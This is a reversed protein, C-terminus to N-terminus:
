VHSEYRIFTERGHGYDHVTECQTFGLGELWKMSKANEHHIYNTLVPYREHMRKVSEFSEKWFIRPIESIIDSGLLWVAGWMGPPCVDPLSAVGWMIEPTGDIVACWSMDPDSHLLSSTLAEEPNLGSSAWVEHKDTARLRPALDIAQWRHAPTIEINM